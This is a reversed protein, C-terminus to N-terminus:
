RLANDGLSTILSIVDNVIALLNAYWLVYPILLSVVWVLEVKILILTVTSWFQLFTNVSYEFNM